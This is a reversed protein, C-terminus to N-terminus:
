KQLRYVAPNDEIKGDKFDLFSIDKAAIGNCRTLRDASLAIGKIFGYQLISHKSFASCHPNYPCNVSIQPSLFKQYIYLLGGFTLSVPNYRVIPNKKRSLLFSVKRKTEYREQRFNQNLLLTKNNTTTQSYVPSSTCLFWGAMILPLASIFKSLLKQM